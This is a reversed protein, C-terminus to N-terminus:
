RASELLPAFTAALRDGLDFMATARSRDGDLHLLVDVGVYMALVAGAVTRADVLSGLTSGQLFRRVLDEAFNLWPQMRSLMQERLAPSGSSATFLEALVTSHGCEIDELYLERVLGALEVMGSAKSLAERYREMRAGAVRDLAALLVDNVSGFHYFILAQNFDGTRAITRASTRAFGDRRLTEFAADLIRDRTTSGQAVAKLM